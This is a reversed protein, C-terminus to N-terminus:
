DLDFGNCFVTDASSCAPQIEYAGLDMPGYVDVSGPLDVTRPKRDLDLGNVAPAFDVGLSTAQLHYDGNTADVFTPEGQAVGTAGPLTSADNSLVYGVTLNGASGTFALSQVGPNDVISNALSFTTYQNANFVYGNDVANNAVTCRGISFSTSESRHIGILEHRTHNDALLCNALVIPGYQNEDAGVANIAYGASNNRLILRNARLSSTSDVLLVAGDTHQNTSDAAVNRAIENCAVGPACAVAGLAPPAEPGCTDTQNFSVSSGINRGSFDSDFDAYVAAGEAAINDNIRYDFVCATAGAGEDPIHQTYPKLYIAGGRASAINSSIQVPNAAVTTFLRVTTGDNDPNSSGLAAIGGGYQAQNDYVVGLGGYGPSGFDARAPSLVEVGGGYGNPAKNFAIMTNPRLAYLRTNGEVRIGGGSTDAVNSLVLTDSGLTLTAPGSSGNVNIGAGYGAENFSITSRTLVLAGQGDFSIGGGSCEACTLAGSLTLNRVTLNTTGTVYLVSGGGDSSGNITLLPAISDPPAYPPFSLTGRIDACTVGDGWGQLTLNPKDAIGLHQHTYLHERTIDIITPCEGVADIASQIDDYQCNQADAGVRYHLPLFIPQTTCAAFVDSTALPLVLTCFAIPVRRDM